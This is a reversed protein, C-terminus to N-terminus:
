KLFVQWLAETSQKVYQLITNPFIGIWIILAVFPLVMLVESFSPKKGKDLDEKIFLTRGVLRILTFSVLVIGLIALVALLWSDGFLGMWVMFLGPFHSLAPLGALALVIVLFCIGLLPNGAFVGELDKLDVGRKRKLLVFLISLASISLVLSIMLIAAGALGQQNGSVIGLVVYGLNIMILYLFVEDTRKSSIAILATMVISVVLIWSIAPQLFILAGGFFPMFRYLLYGTAVLLLGLPLMNYIVQEDKMEKLWGHFPFIGIRCSVAVLFVILLAIQVNKSIIVQEISLLDAGAGAISLFVIVFLILVSSFSMFGAYRSLLNLPRKKQLMFYLGLSVVSIELFIYILFIDISAFFGILGLQMVLLSIYIDKSNWRKWNILINFFIVLSVVLILILSFGDVGLHYSINLSNIWEYKEQLSFRLSLDSFLMALATLFLTIISSVLTVEASAPEDRKPLLVLIVIGLLPSFILLTLIHNYIWPLM